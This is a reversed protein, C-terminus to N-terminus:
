TRKLESLYRQKCILGRSCLSLPRTSNRNYRLEWFVSSKRRDRPAIRSARRIHVGAGEVIQMSKIVKRIRGPNSLM